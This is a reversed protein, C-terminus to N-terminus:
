IPRITGNVWEYYMEKQTEENILCVVNRGKYQRPLFQVFFSNGKKDWAYFEAHWFRNNNFVVTETVHAFRQQKKFARTMKQIKNM